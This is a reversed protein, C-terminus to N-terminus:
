YFLAAPLEKAQRMLQILTSLGFCRCNGSCPHSEENVDIDEGLLIKEMRVVFGNSSSRLLLNERRLDDIETNLQANKEELQSASVLQNRLLEIEKRLKVVEEELEMNKEESIRVRTRLDEDATVIIRSGYKSQAVINLQEPTNSMCCPSSAREIIDTIVEPVNQILNVLNGQRESQGEIISSTESETEVEIVQKDMMKLRTGGQINSACCPMYPCEVTDTMVEPVNLESNDLNGWQVSQGENTSSTESETEVVIVQKDTMKLRTEFNIGTVTPFDSSCNEAESHEKSNNQKEFLEKIIDIESEWSTPQLEWTVQHDVLDKFKAVLQQRNHSSTKDWHCIRPFAECSNLLPPRAIDIHEFSWIQLFALCSGVYQVNMDKRRDLWAFVDELVASGWAFHRIDDVNRIFYLFRSDVKANANPFLFTGFAYLLFTRIFDDNCIGGFSQLRSKLSAVTIKRNWRQAGYETELDIFPQDDNLIVPAGVVRLGMILAVDMLSVRCKVGPFCLFM